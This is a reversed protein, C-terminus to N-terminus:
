KEKRIMYGGSRVTSIYKEGYTKDLKNRLHSIYVDVVKADGVYDDGWVRDLIKERSLVIGENELLYQLLRFEKDSLNIEDRNVMVHHGAVDMTLNQTRLLQKSPSRRLAVRIRALLEEIEFPKVLYDNAGQDLASVKDFTADRATIMIVPIENERRIRRLVEMGSINPLMIDLLVLDFVQEEMQRLASRGDGVATVTYGEHELEPKLFSIIENEDEVLLIRTKM